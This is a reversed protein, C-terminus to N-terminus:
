DKFLLVLRLDINPITPIIVSPLRAIQRVDNMGRMRETIRLNQWSKEFQFRLERDGGFGCVYAFLRFPRLSLPTTTQSGYGSNHQNLRSGINITQGIYTFSTDRTSILMYVFGTNCFPLTMDSLRYPWENYCFISVQSEDPTDNISAIELIEEM